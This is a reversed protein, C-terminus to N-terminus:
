KRNSINKRNGFRISFFYYFANVKQFSESKSKLEEKCKKLENFAEERQLLIKHYIAQQEFERKEEEDNKQKLEKRLEAIQKKLETPDDDDAVVAVSKPKIHEAPSSSKKGNESAPSTSGGNDHKPPSKSGDGASKVTKPSTEASQKKEKDQETEDEEDSELKFKSAVGQIMSGATNSLFSFM